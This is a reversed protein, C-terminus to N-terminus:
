VQEVGELSALKKDFTLTLVSERRYRAAIMRDVVGARGGKELEAGAEPPEARILGGSIMAHLQSRAVEKPVDYHYCLAYYAEALVTDTVVVEEGNRFARALRQKAREALREPQGVALRVVVSTDLGVTM